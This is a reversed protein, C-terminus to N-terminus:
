EAECAAEYALIGPGTIRYKPGDAQLHGLERLVAVAFAIDGFLRTLERESTWGGRPHAELAQYLAELIALRHRANIHM